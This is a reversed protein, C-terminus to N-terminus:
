EAMSNIMADLKQCAAPKGLDKVSKDFDAMGRKILAVKAKDNVRAARAGNLIAYSGPRDLWDPNCVISGHSAIGDLIIFTEGTTALKAIEGTTAAKASAGFGVIVAAFAATTLFLTRM